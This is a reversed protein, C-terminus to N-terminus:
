SKPAIIQVPNANHNPNTINEFGRLFSFYNKIVNPAEAIVSFSRYHLSGVFYCRKIIKLIPSIIFVKNPKIKNRNPQIKIPIVISSEIIPFLMIFISGKHMILKKFFMGTFSLKYLSLYYKKFQIPLVM